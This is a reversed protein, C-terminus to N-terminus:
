NELGQAEAAKRVMGSVAEELTETTWVERFQIVVFNGGTAEKLEKARHKAMGLNEHRMVAEDIDNKGKPIVYFMPIDKQTLTDLPITMGALHPPIQISKPREPKSIQPTEKFAKIGWRVAGMLSRFGSREKFGPEGPERFRVGFTEEVPLGLRRAPKRHNWVVISLVKNQLRMRGGPLKTSGFFLFGEITKVEKMQM